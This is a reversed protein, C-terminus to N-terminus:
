PFVVIVGVSGGNMVAVGEEGSQTTTTAASREEGAPDAAGLPLQDCPSSM